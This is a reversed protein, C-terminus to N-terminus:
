GVRREESRGSLYKVLTGLTLAICSLVGRGSSRFLLLGILCFSVMLVDNHGNAAVELLLLPNWALAGLATVRQGRNLPTLRGLLRWALGLNALLLANAVGRYALAQDVI